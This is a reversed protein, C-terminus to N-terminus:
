AYAESRQQTVVAGVFGPAPVFSSMRWGCSEGSEEGVRLLRARDGPALTVDFRHLPYGFGDGQAKIFAEKRTWCNFFGLPRDARRLARYAEREASSFFREALRDADSLVRVAEIDIGVEGDGEDGLAFAAVHACHAVNFRLTAGCAPDLIPKGNSTTTLAVCEPRAGLRRGLLQRLRARAVIFRGRERGFHIRRARDREDSSLLGYLASITAPAVDLEIAVIETM